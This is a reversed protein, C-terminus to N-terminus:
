PEQKGSTQKLLMLDAAILICEDVAKLAMPWRIYVTNVDIKRAFADTAIAGVLGTISATQQM